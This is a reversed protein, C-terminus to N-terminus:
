DGSEDGAPPLPFLSRWWPEALNSSQSTTNSSEDPTPTVLIIATEGPRVWGLQQRAAMEIYEDSNLYDRLASLQQRTTQLEAVERRVAEEQRALQYSQHFNQAATFAFYALVVATLLLIFRVPTLLPISLIRRLRITM